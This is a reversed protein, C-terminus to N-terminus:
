TSKSWMGGTTSITYLPFLLIGKWTMMSKKTEENPSSSSNKQFMHILTRILINHLYRKLGVQVPPPDFHGAPTYQVGSSTFPIHYPGWSKYSKGFNIEPCKSSFFIKSPRRRSGVNAYAPVGTFIPINSFNDFVRTLYMTPFRLM